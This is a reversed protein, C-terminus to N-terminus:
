KCPGASGDACTTSADTKANALAADKVGTLNAGTLDCGNFRTGTLTADRLDAKYLKADYLISNRLDAKALPAGSLDAKSLDCKVCSRTEWLRAVDESNAWWASGAAPFRTSLALAGNVVLVLLRSRRTSLTM